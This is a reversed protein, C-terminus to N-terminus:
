AGRYLDNRDEDSAEQRQRSEEKEISGGASNAAKAAKASDACNHGHKSAKEYAAYAENEADQELGYPLGHLRVEIAGYVSRVKQVVLLAGFNHRQSLLTAMAM